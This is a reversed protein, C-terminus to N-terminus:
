TSCQLKATVAEHQEKEQMLSPVDEKKCTQGYVGADAFLSAFVAQGPLLGAALTCCLWIGALRLWQRLSISHVPKEGAAAVPTDKAAEEAAMAALWEDSGVSLRKSSVAPAAIQVKAADSSMAFPLRTSRIAIQL